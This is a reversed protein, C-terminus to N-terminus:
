SAPVIVLDAVADGAGFELEAHLRLGNGAFVEKGALFEFLVTGDGAQGLDPVSLRVMSDIRTFGIDKTLAGSSPELMILPQIVDSVFEFKVADLRYDQVGIYPVEIFFRVLDSETTQTRVYLKGVQDENQFFDVVVEGDASDGPTHPAGSTISAQVCGALLLVLAGVAIASKITTLFRTKSM